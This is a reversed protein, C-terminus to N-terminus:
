EEVPVNYYDLIFKSVKSFIPAASDAAYSVNRVRDLKVVAVFRPNNLPAFGAFTHITDASYGGKELDPVQATGTKGGVLYGDVQALTAHGNKVVSVLMGSVLKATQPSIVQGVIQPVTEEIIEGDKSVIKEVIYPKVLKGENVIASYGIALQLPTVSIGQGFSATALYIPNPDSLASINGAQEMCMDIDTIEGFGFDQMYKRFRALGVRQAAFVTGTNLSKELVQTMTQWGHAKLDSNRITHRSIVVEGTDTYGSFPDVEGSDIAAAMTFPKFVSGSEYNNMLISNNFIDIDEVENYKNPDFEPYNCLALIRGTTPEMVIISGSSAGYQEVGKRLENCVYYQVTKEITLYLDNGDESERFDKDASAILRGRTDTESRMFGAEGALIKDYCGELGYSGQLINNEQHKGVFGIMQSGMAGEPYFRTIEKVSYIGELGYSKILDIEKDSVFHKLPEYPDNEKTIQLQWDNLQKENKIFQELEENPIEDQKEGLDDLEQLEFVEKLVELVAEPDSIESPVSYLLNMKKNMALPYSDDENNILSGFRDQVYITGREPYLQQFIEHQGSALATYYGHDVIQLKVLRFFMLLSVIFFIAFLINARYDRSQKQGDNYSSGRYRVKKRKKVLLSM